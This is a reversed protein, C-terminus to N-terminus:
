QDRDRHEAKRALARLAPDVDAHHDLWRFDQLDCCRQHEGPVVLAAFAHHAPVVVQDAEHDEDHRDAQDRLLGVEARGHQHERGAQEHNIERPQAELQDHRHQDRGHNPNPRDRRKLVLDTLGFHLPRQHVVVLLVADARQEIRGRVREAFAEVRNLRHDRDARAAREALTPQLTRLRM